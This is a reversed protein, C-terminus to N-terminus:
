RWSSTSSSVRVSVIPQGQADSGFGPHLFRLDASTPRSHLSSHRPRPRSPFADCFHLIGVFVAEWDGFASFPIPWQQMARAFRDPEAAPTAPVPAAPLVAVSGAASRAGASPVSALLREGLQRWSRAVRGRPPSVGAAIAARIGRVRRRGVGAVGGKGGPRRSPVLRARLGRGTRGCGAACGVATGEGGGSCFSLHLTALVPELAAPDGALRRARAPLAVPFPLSLAMCFVPRTRMARAPGHPAEQDPEPRSRDLFMALERMGSQGVIGSDGRGAPAAVISVGSIHPAAAAHFMLWLDHIVFECRSIPFGWCSGDACVNGVQKFPRPQVNDRGRM